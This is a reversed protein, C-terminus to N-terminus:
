ANRTTNVLFVYKQNKSVKSLNYLTILMNKLEDNLYFIRSQNTKSLKRPLTIYFKEMNVMSWELNLIEEKRWGSTYAFKVVPKLYDPLHKLLEFYEWHEFFGERINNEPFMDIVPIRTISKSKGTTFPPVIAIGPPKPM